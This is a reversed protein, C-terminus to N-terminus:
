SYHRDNDRIGNPLYLKRSGTRRQLRELLLANIELQVWLTRELFDVRSALNDLAVEGRHYNFWLALDALRRELPPNGSNIANSQLDRILRTPPIAPKM